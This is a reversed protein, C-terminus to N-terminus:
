ECVNQCNPLVGNGPHQRKPQGCRLCNTKNRADGRDAPIQQQDISNKPPNYRHPPYYVDTQQARSQSNRPRRASSSNKPLQASPPNQPLQASPLNQPLQASPPNHPLQASQQQNQHGSISPRWNKSPMSPQNTYIPLLNKFLRCSFFIITNLHPTTSRHPLINIHTNTITLPYNGLYTGLYAPAGRDRSLIASGHVGPCGQLM